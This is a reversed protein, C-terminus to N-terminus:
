FVKGMLLYDISCNFFRSLKCVIDISPKNKGNEYNAINSRSTDIKKALENQTLNNETRLKRLMDGFIIKDTM